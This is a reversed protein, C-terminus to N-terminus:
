SLQTCYETNWTWYAYPNTSLINYMLMKLFALCVHNECFTKIYVKRIQLLTKELYQYVPSTISPTYHHIKHSYFNNFFYHTTKYLSISIWIRTQLLHTRLSKRCNMQPRWEQPIHHWTVPDNTSSIKLCCPKFPFNQGQLHSWWTTKFHLIYYGLSVTGCGMFIFGKTHLM